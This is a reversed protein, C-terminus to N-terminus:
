SLYRAGVHLSSSLSQGNYTMLPAHFSCQLCDRVFVSLHDQQDTPHTKAVFLGGSCETDREPRHPRSQRAAPRTQTRQEHIGVEHGSVVLGYVVLRLVFRYTFSMSSSCITLSTTSDDDPGSGIDIAEARRSSSCAM